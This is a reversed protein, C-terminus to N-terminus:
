YQLAISKLNSIKNLTKSANAVFVASGSAMAVRMKIQGERPLGQRASIQDMLM